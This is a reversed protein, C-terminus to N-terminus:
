QLKHSDVAMDPSSRRELEWWGSTEGTNNGTVFHCVNSHEKLETHLPFSVASTKQSTRPSVVAQSSSCHESVEDVSQYIHLSARRVAPSPRPKYHVHKMLLYCLSPYLSHECIVQTQNESFGSPVVWSWRYSWSWPIWPRWRAESETWFRSGSFTHLMWECLFM